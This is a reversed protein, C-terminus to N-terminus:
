KYHFYGVLLEFDLHRIQPHDQLSEVELHYRGPLAPSIIAIESNLYAFDMNFRCQAELTTANVGVGGHEIFVHSTNEEFPRIGNSGKIGRQELLTVPIRQVGEVRWLQVKLPLAEHYIHDWDDPKMDPRGKPGGTRFGILVMDPWTGDSRASLEFDAEVRGGARTLEFPKAVPFRDGYDSLPLEPSCAALLLAVALTIGVARCAGWACARPRVWRWVTCAAKTM